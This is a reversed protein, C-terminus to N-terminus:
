SRGAPWAVEQRTPLLLELYADAAREVSFVQARARLSDAAPPHDLVQEIADALAAADGVPVLPGFRGGDLIERPGSPCDTSVVPTGCALAEILANGLGEYRSSLVLVAARSMFALPNHAFGPLDVADAIGLEIALAQLSGAYASGLGSGLIVLRVPRRSRLAAFARLLTAFDKQPDLRGVGLIVPPEGAAFWPHDVPARAAVLLDPAVVPNYITTIRHRPIAAYAALDDAVGRSATVIADATLYARRLLPQVRRDAWPNAISAHTSAQIHESLVLRCDLRTRRLAWAAMANYRPEAALVASPCAENLYDVLAPLRRWLRKLTPVKLLLRWARPESVLGDAAARWLGKKSLEVVRAGPAVDTRLEGKAQGVVLDVALGRAMFAQGLRLMSREVGGGSFSAFLLTLRRGSRPAGGDETLTQSRSGASGHPQL